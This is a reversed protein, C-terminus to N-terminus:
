CHAKQISTLEEICVQELEPWANAKLAQKFEGIPCKDKTKEGTKSIRWRLRRLNPCQTIFVLQESPTTNKLDWLTLDKMKWLRNPPSCRPIETMKLHLTDLHVIFDWVGEMYMFNPDVIAGILYLTTLNLRGSPFYWNRQADSSEGIFYVKIHRLGPHKWIFDISLDRANRLTQDYYIHLTELAPFHISLYGYSLYRRYTLRKISHRYKILADLSPRKDPEIDVSTWLFPSFLDHWAKCVIVCSILDRRTLFGALLLRLDPFDLPNIIEM